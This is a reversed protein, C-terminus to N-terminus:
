EPLVGVTQLLSNQWLLCLLDPDKAQKTEGHTYQNSRPSVWAPAVCGARRWMEWGVSVFKQGGEPSPIRKEWRTVAHSCSLIGRPHRPKTEPQAAAKASDVSAAGRLMQPSRLIHQRESTSRAREERSSARIRTPLM